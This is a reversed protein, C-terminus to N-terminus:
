ARKRAGNEDAVAGFVRIGREPRKAKPDLLLVNELELGDDQRCDQVVIPAPFPISPLWEGRVAGAAVGPRMVLCIQQGGSDTHRVGRLMVTRQRSELWDEGPALRISVIATAETRLADALAAIFDPRDGPHVLRLFDGGEAGCPGLQLFAPENAEGVFGTPTLWLVPDDFLGAQVALRDGEVTSREAMQRLMRALLRGVLSCAVGGIMGAAVVWEAEADGHVALGVSAMFTLALGVRRAWTQEHEGLRLTVVEIPLLLGVLLAMLATPLGLLVLAAGSAPLILVSVIYSHAIVGRRLASAAPLGGLALFLAVMASKLQLGGFLGVSLPVFCLAALALALRPVAFRVLREADERAAAEPQRATRVPSSAPFHSTENSL